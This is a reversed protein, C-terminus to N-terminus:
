KNVRAYGSAAYCDKMDKLDTHLNNKAYKRINGFGAPERRNAIEWRTELLPYPM